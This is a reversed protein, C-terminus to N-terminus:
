LRAVDSCLVASQFIRYKEIYDSVSKLSHTHPVDASMLEMKTSKPQKRLGTYDEPLLVARLHFVVEM